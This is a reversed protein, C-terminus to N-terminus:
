LHYSALSSGDGRRWVCPYAMWVWGRLAKPNTPALSSTDLAHQEKGNDLVVRPFTQPFKSYWPSNSSLNLFTIGLFRHFLLNDRFPPFQINQNAIDSNISSQAMWHSFICTNPVQYTLPPHLWLANTHLLPKSCLSAFWVSRSRLLKHWSNLQEGRNSICRESEAKRHQPQLQSEGEAEGEAGQQVALPPCWLFVPGPSPFFSRHTGSEKSGWFGGQELLQPIGKCVLGILDERLGLM